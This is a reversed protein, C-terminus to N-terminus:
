FERHQYLLPLSPTAEFFLATSNVNLKMESSEEEGQIAPGARLYPTLHQCLVNAYRPGMALKTISAPLSRGDWALM